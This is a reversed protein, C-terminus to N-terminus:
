QANQDVDQSPTQSPSLDLNANVSPMVRMTLVAVLEPVAPIQTAPTPNRRAVIPNAFTDWAATQILLVSLSAVLSQIPIPLTGRSVDANLIVMETLLALQVLDVLLPIAYMVPLSEEVKPFTAVELATKFFSQLALSALHLVADRLPVQSPYLDGSVAASQTGRIISWASPTREARLPIVDRGQIRFTGTMGRM